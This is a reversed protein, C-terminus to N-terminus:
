NELLNRAQEVMPQLLNEWLLEDVKRESFAGEEMMFVELVKRRFEISNKAVYVGPSNKYEEFGRLSVSTAVVFKQAILAEATKLNSGGGDTIPLVIGHCLTKLANLDDDPLVGLTELRSDNLSRHKIFEDHLKLPEGVGGVVVIKANPPVCGLGGEFCDWFGKINPAHNSGTFLL